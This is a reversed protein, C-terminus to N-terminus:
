RGFRARENERNQQLNGPPDGFNRHRQGRHVGRGGCLLWMNGAATTNVLQPKNWCQSLALFSLNLWMITKLWIQIQDWKKVEQLKEKEKNVQVQVWPPANNPDLKWHLKDKTQERDWRTEEDNFTGKSWNAGLQFFRLSSIAAINAINNSFDNQCNPVNNAGMKPRHHMRKHQQGSCCIKPTWCLTGLARGGVLHLTGMIRKESSCMLTSTMCTIPAHQQIQKVTQRGCFLFICKSRQVVCVSCFTPHLNSLLLVPHQLSLCTTSSASWVLLFWLCQQLMTVLQMRTTSREPAKWSMQMGMRWSAIPACRDWHKLHLSSALAFQPCSIGSPMLQQIVMSHVFVFGVM